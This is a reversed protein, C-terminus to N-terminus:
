APLERAVAEVVERPRDADVDVVIDAVSKYLPDRTARQRTLLAPVDAGLEPRHSGSRIRAALVDVDVRLWATVIGPRRLAARCAADEVVSSAASIVTRDPADLAALLDAAELRHLKEVGLRANLQRATEGTTAALGADNDRHRWGLREALLRGTTTKGSGMLGLIVVHRVAPDIAGGNPASESTM